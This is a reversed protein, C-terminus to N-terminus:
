LIEKRFLDTDRKVFGCGEYLKHAAIRDKRSTLELRSVNNEEAYDCVYEIMTKGIKQNRYEPDVCVYDIHYIKINKIIDVMENLVLYGVVVSDLVAVIEIAREDKIKGKEYGFSDLIIKNVRDYDSDTYKRVEVGM